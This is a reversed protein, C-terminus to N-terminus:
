VNIKKRLTFVFVEETFKTRAYIIDNLFYVFHLLSFYCLTWNMNTIFNQLKCSM